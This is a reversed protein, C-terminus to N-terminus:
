RDDGQGTIQGRSQRDALKGVNDEAIEDLSMDFLSALQALYWLVDGIEDHLQDVYAEDDERVYKKVKEAAEGAEGNVATVLFLACMEEYYYADIGGPDAYGQATEQSLEQYESLEM